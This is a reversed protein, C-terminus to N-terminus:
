DNSREATQNQLRWGSADRPDECVTHLFPNANTKIYLLERQFPEEDFIQNGRNNKYELLPADAVPEELTDCIFM